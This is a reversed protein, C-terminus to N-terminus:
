ARTSRGLGRSRRARAALPTPPHLCTCACRCGSVCAVCRTDGAVPQCLADTALYRALPAFAFARKSCGHRADHEVWLPEGMVDFADLSYVVQTIPGGAPPRM